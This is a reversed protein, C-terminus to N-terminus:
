HDTDTHMGGAVRDRAECAPVGDGGGKVVAVNLTYSANGGVAAMFDLFFLKGKEWKGDKM